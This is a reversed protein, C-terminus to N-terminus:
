GAPVRMPTRPPCPIALTPPPTERFFATCRQGRYRMLERISPKLWRYRDQLSLSYRVGEAFHRMRGGNFCERINPGLLPVRAWDMDEGWVRWGGCGTRGRRKMWKLVELLREHLQPECYVIEGIVTEWLFWLFGDLGPTSDEDGVDDAAAEAVSQACLAIIRDAAGSSSITVERIYAVADKVLRNLVCLLCLM